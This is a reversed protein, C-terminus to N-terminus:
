ESQPSGDGHRGHRQGLDGDMEAGVVVGGDGGPVQGFPQFDLEVAAGELQRAADAQSVLEGKAGNPHALRDALVALDDAEGALVDRGAGVDVDVVNGGVGELAVVGKAAVAWRRPRRGLRAGKPAVVAAVPPEAGAVVNGDDTGDVAGGA